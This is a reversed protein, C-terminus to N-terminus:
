TCPLFHSSYKSLTRPYSTLHHSHLMAKSRFCVKTGQESLEKEVVFAMLFAAISLHLSSESPSSSTSCVHPCSNSDGYGMCFRSMTACTHLEIGARRHQSPNYLCFVGLFSSEFMLFGKCFCQLSWPNVGLNERLNERTDM